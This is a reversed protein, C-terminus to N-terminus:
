GDDASSEPQEGDASVDARYLWAIARKVEITDIRTGITDLTERMRDRKSRAQHCFIFWMRPGHERFLRRVEARYAEPDEPLPEGKVFQEPGYGYAERYYLVPAVATVNVFVGQESTRTQDLRKLLPRLEEEGYPTDTDYAKYTSVVFPVALLVTVLLIGVIRVSRRRESAIFWHAGLGIAILLLPTLFLLLRPKAPYKHLASAALCLVLPIMILAGRARDRYFLRVTGAILCVTGIFAAGMETPIRVVRSALGSLTHRLWELTELSFRAPMLYERFLRVKAQSTAVHRTIFGFNLGFSALWVLGVGALKALRQWDKRYLARGALVMGAAAMVFVVPHSFWVAVAGTAGLLLWHRRQQSDRLFPEVALLVLITLLVDMSYQKAEHSHYILRQSAAFVALGPLAATRGAYRKILLYFLPLSALGALLPFLRLSYEKPGFMLTASRQLYLFGVPAAQNYELLPDLLEVFSRQLIAWSLMAEDLWLSWNHLYGAVRFFVGAAIILGVLIYHQRDSTLWRAMREELAVGEAQQEM